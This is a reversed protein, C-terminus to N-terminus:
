SLRKLFFAFASQNKGTESWESDKGHAAFILYDEVDVAYNPSLPFNSSLGLAYPDFPYQGVFLDPRLTYMASLANRAHILMENDPWRIKDADNLSIRANDILTQLIPM